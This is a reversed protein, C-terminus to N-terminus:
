HIYTICLVLICPALGIPKVSFRGAVLCTAKLESPEM